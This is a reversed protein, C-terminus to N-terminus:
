AAEVTSNRARGALWNDIAGAPYRVSRGAKCYRPGIGLHRWKALTQVAVGLRVAAQEPTEYSLILRWLM